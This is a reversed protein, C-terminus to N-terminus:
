RIGEPYVDGNEAIKSDEYPAAIDAYLDKILDDFLSDFRRINTRRIFELKACTLVGIVDNIYCYRTGKMSLFQTCHARIGSYLMAADGLHRLMFTTIVYNLEGANNPTRLGEDLPHRDSQTVYPM